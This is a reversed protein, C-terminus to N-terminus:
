AGRDALVRRRAAGRRPDRPSRPASSSPTASSTRSSRSCRANTPGSPRCGKTSCRAGSEALAAGLNEQAREVVVGLDVPAAVMDDPRVRSFELLGDILSRMRATGRLIFDMSERDEGTLRDDLDEALVDTYTSIMRLPEQLDHSAVSAYRELDANSRALERSRRESEERAAAVNATAARLREAYLGLLGGLLLFTVARTLYALVDASEDEIRVYAGYLVIALVASALGARVGLSAALLAVPLSYLLSIGEENGEVQLRLTFIAAFLVFATALLQPRTRPLPM